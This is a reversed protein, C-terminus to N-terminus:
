TNAFVAARAQNGPGAAGYGRQTKPEKEAEDM